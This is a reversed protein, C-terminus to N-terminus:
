SGRLTEEEAELWDNLERGPVFGRQEAKFYAVTAIENARANLQESKAKRTVRKKARQTTSKILSKTAM